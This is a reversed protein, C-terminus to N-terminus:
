VPKRAAIQVLDHRTEELAITFGQDELMERVEAPDLRLKTYSSVRMKWFGGEKEHVIDNVRVFLPFYELMCTMVRKADGKLPIFRNELRREESYDRFSLLLFGGSELASYARSFLDDVERQSDLHTLTDGWCVIAAPQVECYKQFRRLDDNVAEVQLNVCNHKLESLLTECQDLAKVKMGAKALVKSQVGPGAGLDIASTGKEPTYGCASLFASFRTAAEEPDGQMWSYVDGLLRDYHERVGM